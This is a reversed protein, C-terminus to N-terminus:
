SGGTAKYYDYQVYTILRAIALKATERGGWSVRELHGIDDTLAQIRLWLTFSSSTSNLSTAVDDKIKNYILWDFLGVGTIANVASTAAAKASQRDETIQAEALAPTGFPKMLGDSQDRYYATTSTSFAGPSLPATLWISRQKQENGATEFPVSLLSGNLTVDSPAQLIGTGGPLTTRLELPSGPAIGEVELDLRQPGSARATTSTSAIAQGARTLVQAARAQDNFRSPAAGIYIARGQGHQNYTATIATKNGLWTSYTTTALTSATTTTLKTPSGTVSSDLGALAGTSTFKLTHTGYPVTGNYYSGLPTKNSCLYFLDLSPDGGAILLGDGQLVRTALEDGADLEFPHHAGLIWFQNYAGSRMLRLFEVEEDHNFLTCGLTSTYRNDTRDPVYTAFTDGLAARAAAEERPDCAWVLVRNTPSAHFSAGYTFPVPKVHIIERDLPREAGDTLVLHLSVQYDRNEAMDAVTTVAESVSAGTALNLPRDITRLTEGTELDSIRIRTLAGTIEANGNNTLSAGLEINSFRTPDSPTATLAGRIGDGTQASSEITFAEQSEDLLAASSDLLRADITYQGPALDALDHSQTLMTAAGQAVEGAPLSWVALQAGGPSRLTMEATAGALSSNASDNRVLAQFTAESGPAYSYEDAGATISADVEPQIAFSATSQALVEGHPSILRARAVYAGATTDQTNWVDSVGISEQALVAFAQSGLDVVTEGSADELTFEVQGQRIASSSNVLAASMTVDEDAGYAPSNTQLAVGLLPASVETEVAAENNAVNQEFVLRDPDIVTTLQHTGAATVPDWTFAVSSDAGAALSGVAQEGILTGTAPDGDYLAVTTPESATEGANHVTVDVTASQGTELESPVIDAPALALDSMPAAEPNPDPPCNNPSGGGGSSGEPAWGERDFVFVDIKGNTDGAALDTATSVFAIRRGDDSLAPMQSEGATTSGYPNASVLSTTGGTRDRLFVDKSATADGKALIQNSTFAVLSGDGSVSPQNSETNSWREELSNVSVIETSGTDLDRVHVDTFGSSFPQRLPDLLFSSGSTFAIHGGDASLSPESGLAPKGTSSASATRMTGLARDYVFTVPWGPWQQHVDLTMPARSDFAIYRGDSSISAGYSAGMTPAGDFRVSITSLSGSSRDAVRVDEFYNTTAGNQEPMEVVEALLNADDSIDAHGYPGGVSQILPQGGSDRLAAEISGTQRDRIVLARGNIGTNANTIRTEYLLYRGDGSLVPYEGGTRTVGPQLQESYPEETTEGTTVDHVYLHPSNPSEISTFAVIRGDGSIAPKYTMVTGAITSGDTKVSVRRVHQNRAGDSEPDPVCQGVVERSPHASVFGDLTRVYILNNDDDVALDYPRGSFATSALEVGDRADITHISGDPHPVYLYHRSLLLTQGAPPDQFPAQAQYGDAQWSWKLAGTIQDLAYLTGSRDIVFITGRYEVPSGDLRAATQFSWYPVGTSPDIAAVRGAGTATNTDTAGDWGAVVVQGLSDILPDAPAKAFQPLKLDYLYGGPVGGPGSGSDIFFSTLYGNGTTGFGRVGDSALGAGYDGCPRNPLAAGGGVWMANSIFVTGKSPDPSPNFGCDFAGELSSTFFYLGDYGTTSPIVKNVLTMPVGAGQSAAIGNIVAGTGANIVRQGSTTSAYVIGRNYVPPIYKAPNTNSTDNAAWIVSGTAPDIANLKGASGFFVKGQAAIAAGDSARRWTPNPDIGAHLSNPTAGARQISRGHMPWDRVQDYTRRAVRVYLNIFASNNTLNRDQGAPARVVVYIRHRGQAVDATIPTSMTASGGTALDPVDVTAVPDAGGAPDALFFEAVVDTSISQGRNIVTASVNVEAGVEVSQVDATLDRAHISPDPLQSTLDRTIADKAANLALIALSSTYPDGWSGDGEQASIIADSAVLVAPLDADTESLARTALANARVPPGGSAWTGDPAQSAVLSTLGRALVTDVAASTGLARRYAIVALLAQGTPGTRELEVGWSGDANQFKALRDIARKAIQSNAALSFSRAALATDLPDSLYEHTLGFGGDANQEDILQQLADTAPVTTTVRSLDDVNSLDLAGLYAALSGLTPSSPAVARLAENATATDRVTLREGFGGNQNQTALLAAVGRDIAQQLTVPDAASARAPLAIAVCLAVLM